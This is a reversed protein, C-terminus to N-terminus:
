YFRSYVGRRAKSYSAILSSINRKQRVLCLYQSIFAVWLENFLNISNHLLKNFWDLVLGRLSAPFVKCLLRDNDANLIMAQNYHPIHDYPDASGDFMTFTPRSFGRPPEYDLTHQGLPLSLMDNRRHILTTPPIYFTPRTGFAPHILSMPPMTGKPLVSANRPVQFPQNQRRGAERRAKRSMGSVVDSFASHHSPRKSSKAKTSEWANKTLSLSM